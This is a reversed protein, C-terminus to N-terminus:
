APVFLDRGLASVRGYLFPPSDHVQFVHFKNNKGADNFGHLFYLVNSILYKILLNGIRIGRNCTSSAHRCEIHEGSM